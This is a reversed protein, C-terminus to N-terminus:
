AEPRSIGPKQGPSKTPAMSPWSMALSTVAMGSPPPPPPPPPPSAGAAAAGAAPVLEHHQM